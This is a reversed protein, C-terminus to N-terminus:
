RREGRREANLDDGTAERRRGERGDDVMQALQMAIEGM